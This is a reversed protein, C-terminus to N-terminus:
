EYKDLEKDKRYAYAIDGWIDEDDKEKHEDIWDDCEFWIFDNLESLEYNKDEYDFFNEELYDMFEDEIGLEEIERLRAIAGSWCEAKLDSFTSIDVYEIFRM